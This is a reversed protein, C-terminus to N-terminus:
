SRHISKPLECVIRRTLASTRGEARLVTLEAGTLLPDDSTDVVVLDGPLVGDVAFAACEFAIENNVVDGGGEESQRRSVLPYIECKIGTYRATGLTLITRSDVGVSTNTRPPYISIESTHFKDAISGTAISGFVPM